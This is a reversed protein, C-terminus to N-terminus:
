KMSDSRWTALPLGISNVVNVQPYNAWAHRVAVPEPVEPSFVRLVDGQLEVEAPHWNGNSDAIVFGTAGEGESLRLGAGSQSVELIFTGEEQRYDVVRPCAWAEAEREYVEVLARQAMRKGAKFKDWPHIQNPWGKEEPDQLDNANVAYVGPLRTATQQAERFRPWSAKLMGPNPMEWAGHLEGFYFPASVPVTFRDRWDVILAPFLSEYLRPQNSNAEGQWWLFGRAAYPTCPAITGNWLGSIQQPPKPRKPETGKKGAKEWAALAEEYAKQRTPMAAKAEQYAVSLQVFQSEVRDPSLFTEIQKGAVAVHIIGVPVDLEERLVRAFAYALGPWDQMRHGTAKEWRTNPNTRLEEDAWVVQPNFCRLLPDNASEIAEPGGRTNRLAWWMNSQGGAVWVEGVLLDTLTHTEGATITMTFPGGAEGSPLFCEWRGTEDAITTEEAGRFSVTVEAGPQEWGWIPVDTSRQLVMGDSLISPLTATATSISMIFCSCALGLTAFAHLPFRFWTRITMMAMVQTAVTEKM